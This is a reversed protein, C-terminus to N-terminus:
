SPRGSAAALIHKECLRGREIELAEVLFFCEMYKEQNGVARWRDRDSEAKRIRPALAAIEADYSM